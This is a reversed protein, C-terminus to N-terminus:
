QRAEQIPCGIRHTCRECGPNARAEFNETRVLHAAEALHELVWPDDESIPAQRRVTAGSASPVRLHVIEAGSCARVGPAYEEFAGLRAVLQYIGLQDMVDVEAQSFAQGGTKFDIIRLGQPDREVRDAQGAIVVDIGGVTLPVEFSLEVGVLTRDAPDGVWADYRQVAERISAALGDRRWPPGELADLLEPSAELLSSAPIGTRASQEALEHIIRGMTAAGSVVPAGGARRDLFWARPCALLAEVSSPSLRVPEDPGVLALPNDTMRRLDWWQDPSAGTLGHGRRDTLQALEWLLHGAQTALSPSSPAALTRRVQSVLEELTVPVTVQSPTTMGVGLERVFRSPGGLDEGPESVPVLLM